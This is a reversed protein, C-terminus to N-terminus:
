NAAEVYTLRGSEGGELFVDGFSSLAAKSAFGSGLGGTAWIM